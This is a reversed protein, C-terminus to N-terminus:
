GGRAVSLNAHVFSSFSYPFSLHKVHTACRHRGHYHGQQCVHLSHPAVCSPACAVTNTYVTLWDVPNEWTQKIARPGLNDILEKALVGFDAVSGAIWLRARWAPAMPDLLEVPAPPNASTGNLSPDASAIDADSNYEDDDDDNHTPEKHRVRKKKTRRM